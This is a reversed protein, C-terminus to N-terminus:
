NYKNKLYLIHNKITDISAKINRQNDTNYLKKLRLPVFKLGNKWATTEADKVDKIIIDEYESHYEGEIIKVLYNSKINAKDLLTDDLSHGLEHSLSIIIQDYIPIKLSKAGNVIRECNIEIMKTEPNYTMAGKDDQMFEVQFYFGHDSIFKEVFSKIKGKDM